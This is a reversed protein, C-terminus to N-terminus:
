VLSLGYRASFRAGEELVILGWGNNFADTACSMPEIAISQRHPPTFIQLYNYKQKGTEQWYKLTIKQQPSHFKVEAIGEEELLKFGTDLDVGQLSTTESFESYQELKGTPIMKDNVEIRECAPFYLQCNDVSEGLTFYPHWGDGVPLAHNGTNKM